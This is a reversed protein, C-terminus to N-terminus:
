IVFAFFNVLVVFVVFVVLLATSELALVALTVFVPFIDLLLEENICFLTVLLMELRSLVLFKNPAIEKFDGNLKFFSSDGIATGFGILISTM